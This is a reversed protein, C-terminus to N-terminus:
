NAKPLRTESSQTNMGMLACVGPYCTAFVRSIWPPESPYLAAGPRILARRGARRDRGGARGGSWRAAGGGRAPVAVSVAGVGRLASATRTVTGRMCPGSWPRRRPSGHQGALRGPSNSTDHIANRCM